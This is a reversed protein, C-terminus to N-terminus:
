ESSLIGDNEPYLWRVGWRKFVFNLSPFWLRFGLTPLGCESVWLQSAVTPFGFSSFLFQSVLARFGCDSFLLQSVLNPVWFKFVFVPFGFSVIPIQFSVIEILSGLWQVTAFAWSGGLPGAPVCPWLSWECVQPVCMVELSWCDIRLVSMAIQFSVIETLLWDALKPSTSRTSHVKAIVTFPSQSLVSPSFKLEDSGQAWCM